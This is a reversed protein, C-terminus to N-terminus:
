MQQQMAFNFNLQVVRLENMNTVVIWV